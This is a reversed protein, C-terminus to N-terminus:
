ATRSKGRTKGKWMWYGLIALLAVVITGIIYFAWVPMASLSFGVYFLRPYTWGSENLASDVAKVRWYYPTDQQTSALEEEPSLTYESTTIGEKDLLIDNFDADVAVQLTYSIGSEDSIDSWDFYARSETTGAIDPKLPVPTSPAQAEMIFVATATSAAESATIDHSGAAGPPVTFKVQFDGDEATVTAVPLEQGNNSYTITVESGISFGAGNITLEMGVHGPSTASTAPTVMIGGRIDLKAEAENLSDDSAEVTRTGFGGSTPVLFSAGFSGNHDTVPVPPTIVLEEGDLTITIDARKEFGLGSLAVEGGTVQETPNITILPILTFETQPTDGSEDVATIVHSGVSSEPIIIRCTFNGRDDSQSDGGSIPTIYGDYEIYIDQEPRLGIGSIEVETGVVGEEVDLSIEGGIVLFDVYAAIEHNRQYVAYFYYQGSHVDEVDTGDTLADPLFFGYTREFKGEDDTNAVVLHEYATVDETIEDGISAQQSSFYIFVRENAEFFFGSIEVWSGITGEYPTAYLYEAAHAPTPLLPIFLALIVSLALICVIKTLKM